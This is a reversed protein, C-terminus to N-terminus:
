KSGQALKFHNAPEEGTISDFEQETIRCTDEVSVPAVWRNGGIVDILVAKQAEPIVLIYEEVGNWIFRNGRRYTVPKDERKYLVGDVEVREDDIKIVQSM